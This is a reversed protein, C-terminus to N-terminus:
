LIFVIIIRMKHALSSLSSCSNPQLDSNAEVTCHATETTGATQIM